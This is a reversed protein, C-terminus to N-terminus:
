ARARHATPHALELEALVSALLVRSCVAEFGSAAVDFAGPAQLQAHIPSLDASTDGRTLLPFLQDIQTSPTEPLLELAATVAGRDETACFAQAALRKGDLFPRLWPTPVDSERPAPLAAVDEAVGWQAWAILARWMALMPGHWPARPPHERAVRLHGAAMDLNGRVFDLSCLLLLADLSSSLRASGGTLTLIDRCHREADDLQGRQLEAAALFVLGRCESPRMRLARAKLVGNRAAQAQEAARSQRCYLVALNGYIMPAFFDRGSQEALSLCRRWRREADAHHGQRTSATAELIAMQIHQAHTPYGELARDLQQRVAPFEAFRHEELLLGARLTLACSEELAAGGRHADDAVEQCLALAESRDPAPRQLSHHVWALVVRWRIPAPLQARHALSDKLQDRYGDWDMPSWARLAAARAEALLAPQDGSESLQRIAHLLNESEAAIVALGDQEREILHRQLGPRTRAVVWRAHRLSVTPPNALRAAAFERITTLLRFRIPEAGPQAILMSKERLAQLLDVHAPADPPRQVVAEIADIDFGGRFVSLQALTTQEAESLLSWSWAIARQMTQHRAVGDRPGGGMTHPRSLRELLQRPSLVASRAAALEIALPLGDLAAVLAAILQRDPETHVALKPRLQQARETFLLSGDGESDLPGVELLHEDRLRLRHRSTVLVRLSPAARLWRSLIEAAPAAIQELNDLILLAEDLGALAAGLASVPDAGAPAGGLAGAVGALMSPGDQATSLDCFRVRQQRAACWAAGARAALRTKGAGGPGILTVLRAGQSFLTDIQELEAARGIFRTAVVPLNHDAAPPAETPAPAPRPHRVLRFGIGPVTLLHRPEAPDLEIKRRLRHIAYDAARSVVEPAYGLADVLLRARTVPQGDARLLHQLLSVENSSLSVCQEGRRIEGVDLDIVRDSLELLSKAMGAMM